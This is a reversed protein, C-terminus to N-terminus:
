KNKTKAVYLYKKITYIVSATYADGKSRQLLQTGLTALEKAMNLAHDTIIDKLITRKTIVGKPGPALPKM